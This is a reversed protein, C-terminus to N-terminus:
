LPLVMGHLGKMEKYMACFKDFAARNMYMKADDPNKEFKELLDKHYMGITEMMQKTLPKGDKRM